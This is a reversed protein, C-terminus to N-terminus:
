GRQRSRWDVPALAYFCTAGDGDYRLATGEPIWLVDGPGAEYVASGVRIRMTGELGFFVEDYKVTWEISTGDFKAVGVGMYRSEQEGILSALSAEGSGDGYPRWELDSRKFVCPEPMKNEKSDPPVAGLAADPNIYTPAQTPLLAHV